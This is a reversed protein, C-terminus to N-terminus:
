YSKIILVCDRPSMSGVSMTTMDKGCPTCSSGLTRSFYGMPCPECVL